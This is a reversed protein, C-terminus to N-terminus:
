DKENRAQVNLRVDDNLSQILADLTPGDTARVLASNATETRNYDGALQNLDAFIESNSSGKGADMVGVVEWEGRGFKVRKGLGADPNNDAIQRGVVIERRGETFLRGSKLQIGDRMEFGIPLLGRVTINIGEPYERSPLNILTIVELSAMPDGNKAKAIGPANKLDQFVGRTISSVVESDAGKRTIIAQLPHGSSEFSTRLGNVLALIALLVAVTLAIGLATMISTTKRVILNRINYAIPIAM